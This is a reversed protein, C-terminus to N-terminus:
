LMDELIHNRRENKGDIKPHYTTSFNLQTGLDEQFRTWFQGIFVLGRDSIINRQVDHLRVIESFVVRTIYPV